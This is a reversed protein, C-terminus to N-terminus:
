TQARVIEGYKRRLSLFTFEANSSQYYITDDQLLNNDIGHWGFEHHKIVPKL